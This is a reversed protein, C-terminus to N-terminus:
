LLRGGWASREDDAQRQVLQFLANHQDLVLRLDPQQKRAFLAYQAMATQDAHVAAFPTERLLRALLQEMAPMRDRAIVAPLGTALSELLARGDRLRSRVIPVTHVAHCIGRLHAVAEPTDDERVFSVLTVPQKQALYRIVYYARIKAGGSLPYPLVQTLFLIHSM